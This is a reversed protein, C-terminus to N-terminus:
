ALRVLHSGVGAILISISGDLVEAVLIVEGVILAELMDLLSSYLALM